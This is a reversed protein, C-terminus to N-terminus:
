IDAGHACIFSYSIATFWHTLSSRFCVKARIDNLHARGSDFARWVEGKVIVDFGVGYLYVFM